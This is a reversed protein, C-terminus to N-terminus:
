RMSSTGSVEDNGMLDGNSGSSTWRNIWTTRPLALPTTWGGPDDCATFLCARLGSQLLVVGLRRPGGRRAHGTLDLDDETLAMTAIATILQRARSASSTAPTTDTVDTGDYTYGRALVLRGRTDTIALSARSIMGARMHAEMAADIADFGADSTGTIRFTRNPDRKFVALYRRVGGDDYATVFDVEWGISDKEELLGELGSSSLSPHVSWEPQLGTTFFAGFVPAAPTGHM